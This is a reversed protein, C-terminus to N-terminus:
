LPGTENLRRQVFHLLDLNYRFIYFFHSGDIQPPYKLCCVVDGQDCYSRLSERFPDCWEPHIRPYLGVGDTCTGADWPMKPMFTEEGYSAAAIVNRNYSPEIAPVPILWLSSTGCLGDMVVIGGLSYGLLFIKSKPCSAVYERIYQQMLLVGDAAVVRHDDREHHYPLGVSTSGPILQLVLNQMTVLVNLHDGDGQGRILIAHVGTACMEPPTKQAYSVQLGIAGLLILAFKQFFM